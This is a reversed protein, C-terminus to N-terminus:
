SVWEVLSQIAAPGGRTILGVMTAEAIGAAVAITDAAHQADDDDAGIAAAIGGQAWASAAGEGLPAKALVTVKRDNLTLATALGAAGAGVIIVDSHM